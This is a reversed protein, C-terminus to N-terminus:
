WPLILLNILQVLEMLLVWIAQDLALVFVSLVLSTFILVGSLIVFIYGGFYAFGMLSLLGLFYCLLMWGRLRGRKEKESGNKSNNKVHNVIKKYRKGLSEKPQIEPTVNNITELYVSSSISCKKSKNKTLGINKELISDRFTSKISKPVDILIPGKKLSRSSNTVGAGFAEGFPGCKLDIKNKRHIVGCSALM